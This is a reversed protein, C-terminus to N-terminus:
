KATIKALLKTAWPGLVPLVVKKGQYAKFALVVQLVLYGLWVIPLLLALIITVGFVFGVVFIGVHLLLSQMADFRVEANKEIILFVVSAIWGVFPLYCLAAEVNPALNSKM